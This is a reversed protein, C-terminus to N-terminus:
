RWDMFGGRPGGGIPGFGRSSVRGMGFSSFGPLGVLYASVSQLTELSASSGATVAPRNPDSAMASALAQQDAQVQSVQTSTLGMSTLVTATDAQVQSEAATGTLTGKRIADLDDQVTGIAAHSPAVNSTTDNNLDTQL